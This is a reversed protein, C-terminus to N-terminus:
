THNESIDILQRMYIHSQIQLFRGKLPVNQTYSNSIKFCSHSVQALLSTDM